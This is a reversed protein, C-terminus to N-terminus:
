GRIAQSAPMGIQIPNPSANSGLGLNNTSIQQGGQPLTAMRGLSVGLAAGASNFGSIFIDSLGQFIAGSQQYYKMVNDANFVAKMSSQAVQVIRAKEWKFNLAERKAHAEMLSGASGIGLAAALQGDHLGWGSPIGCCSARSLQFQMSTVAGGDSDTEKAFRTANGCPNSSPEPIGLAQKKWRLIPLDQNMRYEHLKDIFEMQKDILRDRDEIADDFMKWYIILQALAFVLQIMTEIQLEKEYQLRERFYMNTEMNFMNANVVNVPIGMM